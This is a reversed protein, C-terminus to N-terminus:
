ARFWWGSSVVGRACGDCRLARRRYVPLRQLAHLRYPRVSTWKGLEVRYVPKTSKYTVGGWGSWGDIWGDVWGVGGWGVGGCGSWGNDVGAIVWGMWRM